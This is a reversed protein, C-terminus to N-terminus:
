RYHEAGSVTQWPCAPQKCFGHVLAREGPKARAIPARPRRLRKHRRSRMQLGEEAHLRYTKKPNIVRQEAKLLGHLTPYGYPLYQRALGRM